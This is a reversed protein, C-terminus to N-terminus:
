MITPPIQIGLAPLILEEDTAAPLWRAKSAMDPDGDQMM